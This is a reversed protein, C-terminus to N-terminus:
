LMKVTSDKENLNNKPLALLESLPEVRSPEPRVKLHWVLSSLSKLCLGPFVLLLPISLLTSRRMLTAQKTFLCINNAIDFAGTVQVIFTHCDYIAVRANDTLSTELKSVVRSDDHVIMVPKYYLGSIEILYVLSAM